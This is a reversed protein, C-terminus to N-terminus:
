FDAIDKQSSTSTSRSLQTKLQRSLPSWVGLQVMARELALHDFPFRMTERAEGVPSRIVTVAYERGQGPAIELEFDLYDM